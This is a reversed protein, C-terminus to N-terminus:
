RESNARQQKFFCLAKYFMEEKLPKVLVYEAGAEIFAQQTELLGDATCAYIPLSLKMEHRIIRATDIGGLYPLQNDMFILDYDQEKVREIAQLGDSVWDVQISYKQCFAQLIFANTRNDEVLLARIPQTFLQYRDTNTQEADSLEENVVIRIPFLLDFRTGYGVESKVTIKGHLLEVLSSVISLGLGSGGYERTTTSEAQVFPDFIRQLDTAAIGIGTDEISIMLKDIGDQQILALKICISGQHTFKVANSLLNFLIQNLRIQDSHLRIEPEIACEIMLELGKEKCLPNYIRRIASVMAVVPFDSNQILFKGQEIKSFDLIDNLVALLHEGSSCLVNVLEQQEQTLSNQKLLQSAGLIGNLPTRLEHSMKALFDARLRASEEAQERALRSQQEAEVMSTIDQGQTIISVIREDLIIPSLEWLITKGDFETKLAKVINGQAAQQVAIILQPKVRAFLSHQQSYHSLFYAEASPNMRILGGQATWLLTPSLSFNFLDEFQKEQEALQHFTSELTRGFHDFEVIQSGPFYAGERLEVVQHTYSMLRTMENEIKRQLWWRVIIFVFAIAAVVAFMWFLYNNRLALANQNSQVAYVTLVTPAGALTLPTRSVVYKGHIDYGEEGEKVVEDVQYAEAGILTSALVDGGAALVLQQSDSRERLNEVLTVNNNLVVSIYLFGLSEGSVTDIIPTRRVLLYVDGILSRTTILHWDHSFAVQEIIHIFTNDTLGYFQANGDDWIPQTVNAIFRFDAMHSIDTQDISLFYQELENTLHGHLAHVLTANKASSDQHIKLITLRSNFINQILNATQNTTRIVEQTILRSSVQYTHFLIGLTLVSLAMVIARSILTAMHRKKDAVIPRPM